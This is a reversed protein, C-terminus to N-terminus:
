PAVRLRVAKAFATGDPATAAIDLRWLGRALDIRAHGGTLTLERDDRAETPRALHVSLDRAAAPRGGADRLAVFIEGDEYRAAVSWGLAAQAKRRADFSQSAVYSNAVELGPFSQVANVALTVNVAIIIGFGACFIAAVHRGTLEKM